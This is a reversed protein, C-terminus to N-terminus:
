ANEFLTKQEADRMNLAIILVFLLFTLYSPLFLLGVLNLATKVVLAPVIAYLSMKYASGYSLPTKKIWAILFPVLAFVLLLVLYFLYGLSFIIFAVLVCLVVILGISQRIREVWSFLLEQSVTFTPVGRLPQITIQGKDNSTVFDTKTLLAYTKYEEFTKKDFEKTTDIALLNQKEATPQMVKQAPVFYPMPVDTSAEGKEFHIALEQPFYNKVLEPAKKVFLIGAPTLVAGFVITLVVSLLVTCKRYYRFANGFSEQAAQQYFAPNYISKKLTEFLNKM